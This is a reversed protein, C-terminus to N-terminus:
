LKTKRSLVFIYLMNFLQKISPFEFSLDATDDVDLVGYIFDRRYGQFDIIGPLSIDIVYDAPYSTFVHTVGSYKISRWGYFPVSKIWGRDYLSSLYDGVPILWDVVFSLPILDWVTGLDPHFGLRDLWIIAPSSLALDLSGQLRQVGAYSFGTNKGFPVHESFESVVEYNVSSLSVSLNSITELIAKVDNVFPLVGWTFSGYSLSSWFRKTFLLLTDDLEAFFQIISFRSSTPLRDWEVLLPPVSAYLHPLIYPYYAPYDIM